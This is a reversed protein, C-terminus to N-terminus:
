QRNINKSYANSDELKKLESVIDRLSLMEQRLDDTMTSLTVVTQQIERIKRHVTGASIRKEKM